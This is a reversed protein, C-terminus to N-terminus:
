TTIGGPSRDEGKLHSEFYRVDNEVVVAGFDYLTAADDTACLYQGEEGGQHHFRKRCAPSELTKIGCEFFQIDGDKTVMRISGHGCPCDGLKPYWSPGVEVIRVRM